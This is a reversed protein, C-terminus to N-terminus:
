RKCYICPTGFIALHSRAKAVEQKKTQKKLKPQKKATKRKCKGKSSMECLEPHQTGTTSCRGTGPNIKCVKQTQTSPSPTKKQAKNPKKATKRKCKGKPPMECLEPQQTGTTSCRGTGPNIKCVKATAM